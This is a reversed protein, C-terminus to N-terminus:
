CTNNIQFYQFYLSLPPNLGNEKLIHTSKLLLFSFIYFQTVSVCDSPYFICKLNWLTCSDKNNKVYVSSSYATVVCHHVMCAHLISEQVELLFSTSTDHTLKLALFSQTTCLKIIFNILVFLARYVRALLLLSLFVSLTLPRRPEDMEKHTCASLCSPSDSSSVILGLCLSSFLCPCSSVSLSTLSNM